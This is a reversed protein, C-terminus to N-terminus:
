RLRESRMYQSLAHFFFSAHEGADGLPFIRRFYVARVFLGATQVRPPLRRTLSFRVFESKSKTSPFEKIEGM